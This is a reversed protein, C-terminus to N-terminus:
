EARLVDNPDVHAARWAPRSVALVAVIAAVTTVGALTTADLPSVGYLFSTLTRAVALAGTIGLAADLGTL